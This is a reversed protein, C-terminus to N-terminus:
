VHHVLVAGSATEGAGALRAGDAVLFQKFREPCVEAALSTQPIEGVYDGVSALDTPLSDFSALTADGLDRACLELL